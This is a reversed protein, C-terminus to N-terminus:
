DPQQINPTDDYFQQMVQMHLWKSRSHEIFQTM